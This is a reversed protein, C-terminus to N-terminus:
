FAEGDAALTPQAMQIAFCHMQALERLSFWAVLHRHLSFAAWRIAACMTHSQYIQTNTWCNM